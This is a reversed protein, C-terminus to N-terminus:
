IPYENLLFIKNYKLMIYNVNRRLSTSEFRNNKEEDNFFLYYIRNDKVIVQRNLKLLDKVLRSSISESDESELKDLEEYLEKDYLRYYAYLNAYEIMECRRSAAIERYVSEKLLNKCKLYRYSRYIRDVNKPKFVYSEYLNKFNKEKLFNYLLIISHFLRSGDIKKFTKDSLTSPDYLSYFTGDSTRGIRGKRQIYSSKNIFTIDMIDYDTKYVLGSDIVIKANNITISSEIIDTGVIINRNESNIVDEINFEYNSYVKFITYEKFISKIKDFFEDVQKKTPLFVIISERNNIKITHLTNIVIKYVQKKDKFNHKNLANLNIEKVKYSMNNEIHLYVLNDFCKNLIEKDSELTASIMVLRVEKRLRSVHIITNCIVDHEHVEDVIITSIENIMMFIYPPTSILLQYKKSINFIDEELHINHYRLSIINNNKTDLNLSSAMETGISSVLIRRPLVLYTIRDRINFSTYELSDFGDFLYDFFAILKPIQSSKGVGPDGTIVITKRDCWYSFLKLQYIPNLSTINIHKIDDRKNLVHKDIRDGQNGTILYLKNAVNILGNVLRKLTIDEVRDWNSLINDKFYFFTFSEDKFKYYDVVEEVPIGTDYSLYGKKYDYYRINRWYLKYIPFFLSFYLNYERIYDVPFSNSYNVTYIDENPMLMPYLFLMNDEYEHKEFKFKYQKELIEMKNISIVIRNGYGYCVAFM